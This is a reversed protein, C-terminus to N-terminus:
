VGFPEWASDFMLDRVDTLLSWSVGGPEDFGAESFAEDSIPDEVYPDGPALDTSPPWDGRWRLYRYFLWGVYNDVNKVAEWGGTAALDVADEYGYCKHNDGDSCAPNFVDRPRGGHASKVLYHLMEHCITEHRYKEGKHKFFDNKLYIEGTPHSYPRKGWRVAHFKTHWLMDAMYMQFHHGQYRSALATITWFVTLFRTNSYPGFWTQLSVNYRDINTSAYASDLPGRSTGRPLIYPKGVSLDNLEHDGGMQWLERLTQEAAAKGESEALARYILGARFLFRWGAEVWLWSGDWARRIRDREWDKTVVYEYRHRRELMPVRSADPRMDWGNFATSELNGFQEHRAHVWRAVELSIEPATTGMLAATLTTRPRDASNPWGSCVVIGDGLIRVDPIAGGCPLAVPIFQMRPPTTGDYSVGGTLRAGALCILKAIQTIIVTPDIGFPLTGLFDSPNKTAPLGSAHWWQFQIRKTCALVRNITIWAAWIADLCDEAIPLANPLLMTDVDLPPRETVCIEQNLSFPAARDAACGPGTNAQPFDQAKSSIATSGPSRQLQPRRIAAVLRRIEARDEECPLPAPEKSGPPPLDREDIPPTEDPNDCGGERDDDPDGAGDLTWRPRKETTPICGSGKSEIPRSVLTRRHAHLALVESLDVIGTRDIADCPGLTQRQAVDRALPASRDVCGCNRNPADMM